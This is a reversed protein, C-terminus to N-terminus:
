VTEGLLTAPPPPPRALPETAGPLLTSHAAFKATFHM